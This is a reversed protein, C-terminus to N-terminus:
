KRKEESLRARAVCSGRLQSPRQPAHMLEWQRGPWSRLVWSLKELGGPGSELGREQRRLKGAIGHPAYQVLIRRNAFARQDQAMVVDILGIECIVTLINQQEVPV